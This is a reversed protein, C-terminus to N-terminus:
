GLQSVVTGGGVWHNIVNRMRPMTRLVASGTGLCVPCRWVNSCHPPAAGSHRLRKWGGHRHDLLGMMEALAAVEAGGDNNQTWAIL